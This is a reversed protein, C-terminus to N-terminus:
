PNVVQMDYTFSPTHGAVASAGGVIIMEITYNGPSLAFATNWNSDTGGGTTGTMTSLETYQQGTSNYVTMNISTVDTNNATDSALMIAVNHNSSDWNEIGNTINTDTTTISPFINVNYSFSNGKAGSSWLMFCVKPNAAVTTNVTFNLVAFPIAFVLAIGFAIVLLVALLPVSRGLINIHGRKRKKNNEKNEAIPKEM